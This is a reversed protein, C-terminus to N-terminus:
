RALPNKAGEVEFHLHCGTPGHTNGTNGMAGIIEKQAVYDGQTVVIKELHAYKTKTGNPHEIVVFGGYGSNWSLVSGEQIVLGEQAAYIDVGCANAIDVANGSHVQGWNFGKTPPYFYSKLDPLATHGSIYKTKEPKGGPIIIKEGIPLAGTTLKPNARVIIDQSVGYINVIDRLDENESVLHLIGSVPLIILEQGIRLAKSKIGENAWFLTDLSIDFYVAIKSLTDGEEVKYTLLGDRDPLIGLPNGTNFVAASDYLAFGDTEDSRNTIPFDTISSNGEVLADSYYTATNLVRIEPGGFIAVEKFLSTEAGSAFFTTNLIVIGLLFVVPIVTTM